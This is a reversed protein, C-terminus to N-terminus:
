SYGGAHPPALFGQVKIRLVAHADPYLDAMKDLESANDFTMLRVDCERAVRMGHRDQFTDNVTQFTDNVTALTV